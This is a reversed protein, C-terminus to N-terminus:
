THAGRSGPKGRERHDRDQHFVDVNVWNSFDSVQSDDKVLGEESYGDAPATLEAEM